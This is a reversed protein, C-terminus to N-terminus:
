ELHRASGALQAEIVSKDIISWVQAIRGAQFKYFVNEAFQIKRGNVPLDFLEGKPTCDFWLRCSVFPPESVLLQITFCLDPIACFDGELMARYGALGLPRDNHVVKEDVFQGLREWDQGNLCEIYNKYIDPLETM